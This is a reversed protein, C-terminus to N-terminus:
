WLTRLHELLVDKVRGSRMVEDFSHCFGTKRVELTCGLDMVKEETGSHGIMGMGSDDSGGPWSCGSGWPDRAEVRTRDLGNRM